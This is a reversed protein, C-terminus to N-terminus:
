GAIELYKSIAEQGRRNFLSLDFVVNKRNLESYDHFPGSNDVLKIDWKIDAVDSDGRNKLLIYEGNIQIAGSNVAELIRKSPIALRLEEILTEKSM